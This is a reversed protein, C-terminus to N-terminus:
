GSPLHQLICPLQLSSEKVNVDFAGIGMMEDGGSQDDRGQSFRRLLMRGSLRTDKGWGM